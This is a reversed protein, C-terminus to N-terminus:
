YFPNHNAAVLRVAAAVAPDKVSGKDFWNSDFDDDYCVVFDDDYIEYTQKWMSRITGNCYRFIPEGLDEPVEGTWRTEKLLQKAAKLEQKATQEAEYEQIEEDTAPRCYVTRYTEYSDFMDSYGRRTVEQVGTVYNGEPTKNTEGVELLANVFRDPNEETVFTAAEILELAEQTDPTDPAWGHPTNVLLTGVEYKEWKFPNRGAYNARVTKKKTM